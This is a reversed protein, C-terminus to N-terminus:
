NKSKQLAQVQQTLADIRNSQFEMQQNQELLYLTLEEVKQLLKANMEGVSLGQKRVEAQAPVDPLHRNHLIYLGLESLPMLQYDESFVYDPWSQSLKIQIEEALIKGDVSLRYGVPLNSSGISVGGGTGNGHLIMVENRNANAGGGSETDTNVMRFVLRNSGEDNRYEQIAEADQVFTYIAEEFGTTRKIVFPRNDEVERSYDAFTNNFIAVPTGKAELTRVDFPAVPSTTGIGLRGSEPISNTQAQVTYLTSSIFLFTVIICTRIKKM